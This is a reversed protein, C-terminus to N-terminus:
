QSQTFMIELTIKFAIKLLTPPLVHSPPELIKYKILNSWIKINFLAHQFCIM